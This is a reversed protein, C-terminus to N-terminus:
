AVARANTSALYSSVSKLLQLHYDRYISGEIEMQKSVLDLIVISSAAGAPLRVMQKFMAECRGHHDIMLQTMQEEVKEWGFDRRYELDDLEAHREDVWAEEALYRNLLSLLPDDSANAVFPLAAIGAAALAALAAVGTGRLVDRRALKQM